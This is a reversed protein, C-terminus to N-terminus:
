KQEYVWIDPAVQKLNKLEAQAEARTSFSMLSVLIRNKVRIYTITHGKAKLKNAFTNANKEALIVHSAGPRDNSTQTQETQEEIEGAKLIITVRRNESDNNKVDSGHHESVEGQVISIMQSRSVGQSLLYRYVNKARNGSLKFNLYDSGEESAYGKIYISKTSNEKLYDVVKSLAEKEKKEDFSSQSQAYYITHELEVMEEKVLKEIVLTDTLTEIVPEANVYVTDITPVIDIPTKPVKNCMRLAILIEHSGSSVKALDTMAFEYAYAVQIQDNVNFGFRGLIGAEHRYGVGLQLRNKVNLLLNGEFQHQGASGNKYLVSPTISVKNLKGFRYGMYGIMHRRNTLGGSTTPSLSSSTEMINPISFSLQFNKLTYVFGFESYFSVGKIRETNLSPDVEVQITSGSLDFAHQNIGAGIGLRLNHANGFNLKYAYIGQANVQTLTGLRDLMVKGGLSMNKGIEMSGNVYSVQPAGHYGSWQGLHGINIKACGSEGAYAPNIKFKNFEYLNTEALQQTAGWNSILVAGLILLINNKM